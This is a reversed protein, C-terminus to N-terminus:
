MLLMVLFFLLPCSTIHFAIAELVHLLVSSHLPRRKVSCGKVNQPKWPERQGLGVLNVLSPRVDPFILILELDIDLCAPSFSHGDTTSGELSAPIHKELAHCSSCPMIVACPRHKSFPLSSCPLLCHNGCRRSITRTRLDWLPRVM